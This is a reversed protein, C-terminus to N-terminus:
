GWCDETCGTEALDMWLWTIVDISLAGTSLGSLLAPHQLLDISCSTEVHAHSILACLGHSQRFAAIKKFFTSMFCLMGVFCANALQWIRQYAALPAGWWDITRQCSAPRMARESQMYPKFQPTRQTLLHVTSDHRNMQTYQSPVAGNMLSHWKNGKKATCSAVSDCLIICTKITVFMGQPILIHMTQICLFIYGNMNVM